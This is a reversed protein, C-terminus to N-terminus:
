VLHYQKVINLGLSVAIGQVYMVTSMAVERKAENRYLKMFGSKCVHVPSLRAKLFQGLLGNTSIHM